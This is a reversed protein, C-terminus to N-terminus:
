RKKIIVRKHGKDDGYIYIMYQYYYAYLKKNYEGTGLYHTMNFGDGILSELLFDHGYDLRAEFYKKCISDNKRLVSDIDRRIKTQPKHVTHYRHYDAHSKSYFIQDSRRPIFSHGCGCHCIREGVPRPPLSSELVKELKKM